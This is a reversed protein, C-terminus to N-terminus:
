KKGKLLKEIYAKERASIKFTRKKANKKFAASGIKSLKSAKRLDVTKLKTCGYFSKSGISKVKNGIAVKTINKCGYFANNGISTINGSITVTGKIKTCNKFANKEISTVTFTYGKFKVKSVVKPTGTKAYGTISVAGTKNANQVSVIKYKVGNVTYRNGKVPAQETEKTEFVFPEDSAEEATGSASPSPQATEQPIPTATPNSPAPTEQLVPTASVIATGTPVQSVQTTATPTPTIVIASQTPITTTPVTADVKVPIIYSASKFHITLATTNAQLVKEEITIYDTLNKDQATDVIKGSAMVAQLEIDTALPCYGAALSGKYTAMTIQTAYDSIGTVKIPMAAKIGRYYVNILNEGPVITYADLTVGSNDTLLTGEAENNEYIYVALAATGTSVEMGEYVTGTYVAEVKTITNKIGTISLANELTYGKYVISINNLGNSVVYTDSEQGNALFKFGSAVKEDKKSPNKYTVDTLVVDSVNLTGGEYLKEIATSAKFGTCTDSYGTAVINESIYEDSNAHSKARVAVVNEGESITHELIEYETDSLLATTGNTYSATVKLMDPTVTEGVNLHLGSSEIALKEIKNYRALITFPYKVGGVEILYHNKGEKLADEKTTLATYWGKAEEDASSYYYNYKDKALSKVSDDKKLIRYNFNTAFTTAADEVNMTLPKMTYGNARVFENKEAYQNNQSEFNAWATINDTSSFDYTASTADDPIYVESVKLEFVDSANGSNTNKVYNYFACTDNQMWEKYMDYASKRNGDTDWAMAGGWGYVNTKGSATRKYSSGGGIYKFGPDCFFISDCNLSTQEDDGLPFANLEQVIETQGNINAYNFYINNVTSYFGIRDNGNTYSINGCNNRNDLNFYLNTVNSNDLTKNAFVTKGNVSMNAIRCKSFASSGFTTTGELNLNTIQCETFCSTNITTTGSFSVNEAECTKLFGNPLSTNGLTILTALSSIGLVSDTSVTGNLVINAPACNYFANKIVIKKATINIDKLSTNECFASPEITVTSEPASISVKQLKTCRLFCNTKLKIDNETTIDITQVTENAQLYNSPIEYYDSPISISTYKGTSIGSLIMKESWRSALSYETEKLATLAEDFSPYKLRDASTNKPSISIDSLTSGSDGEYALTFSNSGFTINAIVSAAFAEGLDNLSLSTCIITLVVFLSMVRKQLSQKM